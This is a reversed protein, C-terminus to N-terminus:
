KDEAKKPTEIVLKLDKEIKALLEKDKTLRERVSGKGKIKEGYIEYNGSSGGSIVGHASATDILADIIDFGVGFRFVMECEKYPPAMKNKMVKIKVKHGIIGEENENTIDNFVNGKIRGIIKVSLRLAAYFKLAKGGPTTEKDGWLKGIQDRLQNVFILCIGSQEVPKSIQKLLQSMVRAQIGIQAEGVESKLDAEAPAAAVSDWIVVDAEGPKETLRRIIMGGEEITSPQFLTLKEDSLDLGLQSAYSTDFAQEFDLIVVHGGLKQANAGVQYSLGSKGAGEGGSIEIIRGRPFGGVGIISDVLFNGSPIVPVDHDIKAEMDVVVGKGLVKEIAKITDKLAM